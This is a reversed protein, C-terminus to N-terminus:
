RYDDANSGRPHRLDEDGPDTVVGTPPRTGVPDGILGLNLRLTERQTPGLTIARVSDPDGDVGFTETTTPPLVGCRVGARVIEQLAATNDKDDDPYGAVQALEKEINGVTQETMTDGQGQVDSSSDDAPGFQEQVRIAHMVAQNKSEWLSYIAGTLWASDPLEALIRQACVKYANMVQKPRGAPLHYDDFAREFRHLAPHRHKVDLM